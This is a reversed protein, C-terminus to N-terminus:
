NMLESVARNHLQWCLARQTEHAFAGLQSRAPVRSAVEVAVSPAAPSLYHLELQEVLQRLGVISVVHAGCCGGLSDARLALVSRGLCLPARSKNCGDQSDASFALCDEETRSKHLLIAQYSRRQIPRQGRTALTNKETSSRRGDMNREAVAWWLSSSQKM